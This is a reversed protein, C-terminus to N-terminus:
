VGKNKLQNKHLPCALPLHNGWEKHRITQPTKSEFEVVQLGVELLCETIGLKGGWMMNQPQQLTLFNM